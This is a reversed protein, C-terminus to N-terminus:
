RCYKCFFFFFSKFLSLIRIPPPPDNSYPLRGRYKGYSKKAMKFVSRYDVSRGKRRHDGSYRRPEMHVRDEQFRGVDKHSRSPSRQQVHNCRVTNSRQKGFVSCRAPPPLKVVVRSGPRWKRRAARSLQQRTTAATPRFCILASSPGGRGASRTGGYAVMMAAETWRRM